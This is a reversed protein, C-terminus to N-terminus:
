PSGKEEDLSAPASCIRLSEASVHVTSGDVCVRGCRGGRRVWSARTRRRRIDPGARVSLGHCGAFGARGVAARFAPPRADLPHPAAAFALLPARDGLDRFLGADQASEGRVRRGGIADRPRDRIDRRDLCRSARRAHAFEVPHEAAPEDRARGDQDRALRADALRGQQELDGRAGGTGASAHQVHAGLLGRRLHPQTGLARAGQM